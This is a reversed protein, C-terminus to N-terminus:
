EHKKLKLLIGVKFEEDESNILDWDLGHSKAFVGVHYGGLGTNGTKGAKMSKTSYSQKTVGKPLAKGNNEMLLEIYNGNDKLTIKFVYDKSNNIFGHRIANDLVSKFVNRLQKKDALIKTNFEDHDYFEVITFIKSTERKVLKKLFLKIDFVKKNLIDEDNSLLNVQNSIVKVTESLSDLLTKMTTGDRDDLITELQIGKEYTIFEGKIYEVISNLSSVDQNLMHRKSSLDAEQEKKFVDLQKQFGFELVFKEFRIKKERKVIDNQQSISPPVDIIFNQIDGKRIHKVGFGKLFSLFQRNVYEKNLEQILFDILVIEEDVNYIAVNKQIAIEENLTDIFSPKLKGGLTALLLARGKFLVHNRLGVRKELESTNIEFNDVDNSLDKISLSKLLSTLSGIKVKTPILLDSLYVPNTLEGDLLVEIYKSPHINYDNRRLEIKNVIRSINQVELFENYIQIIEKLASDSFVINKLNNEVFSDSELLLIDETIKAKNLVWICTRVGSNNLIGGPLSIIAELFNDEIIKKRISVESKNASFLSNETLLIVAKGNPKLHHIAHQIWALNANNKPPLGYHFRPDINTENNLWNIVNLPPHMIVGDSKLDPFQNDILTSKPQGFQFSNKHSFAFRLKVITLVSSSIEQGYFQFKQQPYKDEIKQFFGGTGCSSDLISGDKSDLLQVMLKSVSEPTIFSTLNRGEYDSFKSLLIGIFNSFSVDGELLGFESIKIFLNKVLQLDFDKNFKNIFNFTSFTDKIKENEDELSLFAKNLLNLFDGSELNNVLYSWDANTPISIESFQNSVNKDNAHKLFILSIVIERLEGIDKHGRVDNFFSWFNDELKNM